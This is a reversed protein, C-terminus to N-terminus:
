QASEAVAPEACESQLMRAIAGSEAADVDFQALVSRNSHQLHITKFQALANLLEPGAYAGAGLQLEGYQFNLHLGDGLGHGDISTVQLSAPGNKHCGAALRYTSDGSLTWALVGKPTTASYWRGPEEPKGDPGVHVKGEQLIISNATKAPFMTAMAPFLEVVQDMFIYCLPVLALIILFIWM